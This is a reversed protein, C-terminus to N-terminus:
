MGKPIKEGKYQGSKIKTTANNVSRQKPKPKKAEDPSAFLFAGAGLGAAAGRRFGQGRYKSKMKAQLRQGSAVRAASPPQKAIYTRAATNQRLISSLSPMGSVPGSAGGGGGGYPNLSPM